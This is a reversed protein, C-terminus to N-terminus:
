DLMCPVGDLDLVPVFDRVLTAGDYLKCASVRMGNCIVPNGNNNYAFLFMPVTITNSNAQIFTNSETTGDSFYITSVRNSGDIVLRNAQITKTPTWSVFRLAVSRGYDVRFKNSISIFIYTNAEANRAGFGTASSASSFEGRLDAKMRHYKPPVIGTNIYQTGTCELYALEEVRRPREWFVKGGFSITSVRGEPIVLNTVNSFEVM